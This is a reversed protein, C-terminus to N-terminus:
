LGAATQRCQAIFRELSQSPMKRRHMAICYNRSLRLFPTDLVALRGDRLGDELLLRSVCGIGNGAAIMQLISANSALELRCDVYIGAERAAQELVGRTSSGTERLLWHAGALDAPRLPRRLLALPHDHAAFVALEDRHWPRTVLDPHQCDGELLGVDLEFNALQEILHSTNAVELRVRAAPCARAFDSIVRPALYDAVTLTAGVTLPALALGTRLLAELEGAQDLLAQGQARLAQGAANLALKRGIRDFLQIDYMKELEALAASAASQSMALEAAARSVNQHEAIALFVQLQKLSFHM